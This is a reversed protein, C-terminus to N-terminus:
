EDHYEPQPNANWDNIHVDGVYYARLVNTYLYVYSSLRNIIAENHNPLTDIMAGNLYSELERTQLRLVELKKLYKYRVNPLLFNHSEGELEDIEEQMVVLLHPDWHWHECNETYVYAGLVYANSTLYKIVSLFRQHRRRLWDPDVKARPSLWYGDLAEIIETAALVWKEFVNYFRVPLSYKDMRVGAKAATKGDDGAGYDFNPNIIQKDTTM